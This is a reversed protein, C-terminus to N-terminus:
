RGRRRALLKALSSGGPLGRTGQKLSSDVRRWTEGPAGHIEEPTSRPWGGTRKMHADAWKLIQSDTLPPLGKRNRVGRERALLQALSSGGPLGRHGQGLSLSVARWTEGPMGHVDGSNVSPWSRTTKEHADAWALIQAETLPSLDAGNRVGREKALLKAVSSGGPLGRRGEKLAANVNGWVEGPAGHVPGSQQGPWEGTMKKHADAWELVQAEALPPLAQKNRVGRKRALLKALSSGSPLGRLGEALASDVALWTEGPAGYIEGSRGRPWEGTREMHADAWRLIQPHTLPPLGKRNRRGRERALLKALSSGGPFGRLGVSLAGDIRQWTEGPAGAIEGSTTSPWRRTRKEHADAWGLIQAETLPPLAGSNRVGRKRDLLKALSSGGPLGRTAQILASNVRRWTEGPAGDIGGQMSSPWEGTRKKHTDVWRLIQAETLPRLGKRNRVGRERALFRALSAGGTLGRLGLRLANEISQWTEGRTGIIEGSNAKPWKGTRKVHADAWELIQVHTLPPRGGKNFVGRERALLRPLSSGGPLGRRGARLSLDINRWIEGPAGRIEGSENGPWQGTTKMHADVWTLIQAETLPPLSGTSRVGRERTLLKALSSGGRLGRHGQILSVDVAQWAEGPATRIEGSTSSPWEGTRKEHADAWKLIQAETLPPLAHKNRVGRERALLKALSSGGPLGRAGQSLAANVNGWIDGPAGHIQGSTSSPWEGTRRKHADAWSLIQAETLQPLDLRNRVGRARALLKALSSGGPLGRGGQSLAANVNGWVDGPAGQIEGSTSSPWEGTRREHADAWEIIQAETLRPRLLGDLRDWARLRLDDAFEVLNVLAPRAEGEPDGDTRRRGKRPGRALVVKIRERIDEDVTSMAKLVAILNEFGTGKVIEELDLEDDDVLVPILVCGRKDPQDLPKRLARGVAQVIDVKSQRPQAFLVLDIGPVDVGETLCRANSILARKAERFGTLERHRRGASLDSSVRYTKLEGFTRRKANLAEQVRVFDGAYKNRSHFSVAHSLEYQSLAKRLALATALDEATLAALEETDPEVDGDQPDVRAQVYAREEIFRRIEDTESRAVELLVVSYEALIGTEIAEGFPMHHYREGYVRADNMGVVEDLAGDYVRETATMFVRRKIRVNREDLLHQFAKGEWGATKHAEDFIGVDFAFRGAAEALMKGSQYTVFVVRLGAKAENLWSRIEESDTTTHAALDAVHLDGEATTKDSCVVLVDLSRGDAAAERAWVTLTQQILILSPVAVIVTKAKLVDVATWYGILSKGTGCPMILKGRREAGAVFHRRAAELAAVQYPRRERPTLPTPPKGATVEQVRKWFEAPLTEWKDLLVQQFDFSMAGSFDSTKERTTACILGRCVGSAVAASLTGFTGLEGYPISGKPDARYKAQVTWYEGRKTKALLDVGRDKAPLNLRRKVTEPIERYLWVDALQCAFEPDHQLLLQVLREFVDGKRKSAKTAADSGLANVAKRFEPWSGLPRLVEDCSEPMRWRKSKAM